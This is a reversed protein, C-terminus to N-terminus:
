GDKVSFSTGFVPLSRVVHDTAKCLTEIDITPFKMMFGITNIATGPFATENMYIGYESRNLPFQLIKVESM